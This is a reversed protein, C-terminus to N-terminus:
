VSSAREAAHEPNNQRQPLVINFTTGVGVTSSVEIRGKHKQIIGYSLSLGLGTGKGIPKTTFFPDFIKALTDPSIGCGTDSFSIAVKDGLNETRVTIQGRDRGEMAHGANVLMNLFVQNIESALCEVQPLNAFECVVNARYKLESQVINLTSQLGRELDAWVWVQGDSVHSFDKLDQVIKRVREIGDQSEDMLKAIDECLFEYDIDQRLKGLSKRLSEDAIGSEAAIQKDVLRRLDDVYNRLTGFNSFVFGIPNNIEHAVGAALQGISALKESQLLQEHAHELQALLAAQETKELLIADHRATLEQSVLSLSRETFKRDADSQAYAADVAQLLAQLEPSAQMAESLHRKLQRALLPHM